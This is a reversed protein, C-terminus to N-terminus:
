NLLTTMTLLCSDMTLTDVFFIFLRTTDNNSFFSLESMLLALHAHQRSHYSGM